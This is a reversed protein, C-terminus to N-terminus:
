QPTSPYGATIGFWWSGLFTPPPAGKKGNQSFILLRVKDADAHDLPYKPSVYGLAIGQNSMELDNRRRM